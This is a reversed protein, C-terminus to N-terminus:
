NLVRLYANVFGGGSSPSFVLEGLSYTDEQTAYNGTLEAVKKLVEEEYNTEAYFYIRDKETKLKL